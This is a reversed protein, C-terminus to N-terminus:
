DRSCLRDLLREAMGAPMPSTTTRRYDALLQGLRREEGTCVACSALHAAVIRDAEGGGGTEISELAALLSRCHEHVTATM